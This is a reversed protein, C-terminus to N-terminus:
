TVWRPLQLRCAIIQHLDLGQKFPDPILSLKKRTAYGLFLGLPYATMFPCASGQSIVAKNSLKIM